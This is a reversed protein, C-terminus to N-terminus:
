AAVVQASFFFSPALAHGGSNSTSVNFWSGGTPMWIDYLKGPALTFTVQGGLNTIFGTNPTADAGASAWSTGNTSESVNIPLAYSSYDAAFQVLNSVFVTVLLQHSTDPLTANGGTATADLIVMEGKTTVSGAGLAAVWTPAQVTNIGPTSGPGATATWTSGGPLTGPTGTFNPGLAGSSAAQYVFNGSGAAANVSLSQTGTEGLFSVGMAAGLVALAAIAVILFRRRRSGLRATQLSLEMGM